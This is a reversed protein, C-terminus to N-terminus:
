MQKNMANSISDILIDAKFGAAHAHGGGGFSMAIDAVNTAGDREASRLEYKWATGTYYFMCGFDYQDLLDGFVKSTGADTNLCICQGYETDVVFAHKRILEYRTENYKIIGYGENIIPPVFANETQFLKM